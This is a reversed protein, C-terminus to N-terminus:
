ASSCDVMDVFTYGKVRHMRKFRLKVSKEAMEAEVVSRFITIRCYLM